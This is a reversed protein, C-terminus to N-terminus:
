RVGATTRRRRPGDWEGRSYRRTAVPRREHLAGRLEALWADLREGRLDAKTVVIVIWGQSRLADRRRQDHQKDHDETHFEEGDYEVAIKLWAYALDLRVWGYDEVHVWLNPRPSPLGADIIAMRTWSEGSSEAAPTAHEVLERLQKVGRRGKFRPLMRRYDDRTLGHHRMFADLVALATPRGRLCALDCATRLATTTLVGCVECIEEPLLDRKGGLVGDRRTAAQGDISVVELDPPLELDALDYADIGHLWAASRDSVVVHPAMVLSACHARVEPTDPVESRILVRRVPRRLVGEKVLAAVHRRTLGYRSADRSLFPHEPLEHM